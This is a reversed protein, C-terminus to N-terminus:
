GAIRTVQKIRIRGLLEALMILVHSCEDCERLHEYEEPLFESVGYECDYIRSGAIHEIM